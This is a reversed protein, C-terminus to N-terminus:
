WLWNDYVFNILYNFTKEYLVEMLSIIDVSGLLFIM